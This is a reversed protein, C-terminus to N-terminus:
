NGPEDFSIESRENSRIVEVVRKPAEKPEEKKVPARYTRRQPKPQNTNAMLEKLAIGNGAGAKSDSANRLALQLTGENMALALKSAQEPNVLLTVSKVTMPDSNEKDVTQDIAIVEVNELIIKSTAEEKSITPSATVLVDVKTKPLIFGGVGSVVNVAVTMARMGQPILSSFGGMSGEPALKSLLIAEGASMETKLVRDVLVDMNDFSGNPVLEIPWEKTAINTYTLLSGIGLDTASVVVSRKEIEVNNLEAKKKEIIKFAGLTAVAGALIAIPIIVKPKLFTM